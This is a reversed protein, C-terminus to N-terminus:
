PQVTGMLMGEVRGSERLAKMKAEADEYTYAMLILAYEGDPMQYSCTFPLLVRGFDDKKCLSPDPMTRKNREANIDIPTM